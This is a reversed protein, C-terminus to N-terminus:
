QNLYRCVNYLLSHNIHEPTMTHTRSHTNWTTHRLTNCPMATMDHAHTESRTHTNTQAHVTHIDRCTYAHTHTRTHTNSRTLHSVVWRSWSFNELIFYLLNPAAVACHVSRTPLISSDVPGTVFYPTPDIRHLEQAISFLLLCSSRIWQDCYLIYMLWAFQEEFTHLTISETCSSRLQLRSYALHVLGSTM